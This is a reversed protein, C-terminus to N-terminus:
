RNWGVGKIRLSHTKASCSPLGASLPCLAKSHVDGNGAKRESEETPVPHTDELLVGELHDGIGKVTMKLRPQNQALIDM